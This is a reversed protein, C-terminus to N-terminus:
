FNGFAAQQEPTLEFPHAMQGLCSLDDFNSTDGQKKISPKYPADYRKALLEEWLFGQNTNGPCTALTLTCTPTSRM